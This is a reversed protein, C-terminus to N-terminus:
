KMRTLQMESSDEMEEQLYFELIWEKCMDHNNLCEIERESLRTKAFIITLATMLSNRKKSFAIFAGLDEGHYFINYDQEAFKIIKKNHYYKGMNKFLNVCKKLFGNNYEFLESLPYKLNYMNLRNELYEKNLMLNEAVSTLVDNSTSISTNFEIPTNLLDTEEFENRKIIKPIEIKQEEDAKREVKVETQKKLKNKPLPKNLINIMNNLNRKNYKLENRIDKKFELSEELSLNNINEYWNEIKERTPEKKLYRIFKAINQRLLAVQNFTDELVEPSVNRILMEKKIKNIYYNIKKRLKIVEEMTTAKTIEETLKFILQKAKIINKYEKVNKDDFDLTRITADVKESLIDNNEAIYKKVMDLMLVRDNNIKEIKESMTMRMKM